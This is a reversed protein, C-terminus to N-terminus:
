GLKLRMVLASGNKGDPRRYYGKREGVAQFGLSRYLAVAATNDRNVELFLAGVRDRYLRRLAAEMLRRGIGRRRNGAGVAITLLEAEGAAQRVIAFGVLRRRGLFSESRAALVFIAREGVLARFDDASWPHSFAGAHIEVLAEAERPRVEDIITRLSFFPIM